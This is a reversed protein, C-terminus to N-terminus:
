NPQQMLSALARKREDSAILLNEPFRRYSLIQNYIVGELANNLAMGAMYQLRLNGDRNIQANALWPRLDREQGAYTALMDTVSNFGVYRMSAAVNAYGPRDLRQQLQDVDIRVPDV